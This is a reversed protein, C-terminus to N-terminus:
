HDMASHAKRPAHFTPTRQLAQKRGPATMSPPRCWDSRASPPLHGAGSMDGPAPTASGEEKVESRRDGVVRPKSDAARGWNDPRQQADRLAATPRQASHLLPPPVPAARCPPCSRLVTGWRLARAGVSLRFCSVVFPRGPGHAAVGECRLVTTRKM